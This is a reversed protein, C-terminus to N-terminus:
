RLTEKLDDIEEEFEGIIARLPDAVHKVLFVTEPEWSVYARAGAIDDVGYRVLFCTTPLEPSRSKCLIAAIRQSDDVMVENETLLWISTWPSKKVQCAVEILARQWEEADNVSNGDYAALLVDRLFIGETDRHHFFMSVIRQQCYAQANTVSTPAALQELARLTDIEETLTSELSAELENDDEGDDDDDSIININDTCDKTFPTVDSEATSRNMSASAAVTEDSMSEDSKWPQYRSGSRHCPRLLIKPDYMETSLNINLLHERVMLAQEDTESTTHKLRNSFDTDLLMNNKEEVWDDLATPFPVRWGSQLPEGHVKHAIVVRLPHRCYFSLPLNLFEQKEDDLCFLCATLFLTEVTDIQPWRRNCWYWQRAVREAFFTWCSWFNWGKPMSSPRGPFPCGDQSRPLKWAAKKELDNVIKELRDWNQPSGTWEKPPKVKLHTFSLLKLAKKRHAPTPVARIWEKKTEEFETKSSLNKLRAPKGYPTLLRVLHMDDAQEMVRDHLESTQDCTLFFIFSLSDDLLVYQFRPTQAQDAIAGYWPHWISSQQYTSTGLLTQAWPPLVFIGLATFGAFGNGASM